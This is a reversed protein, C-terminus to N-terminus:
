ARDHKPCLYDGRKVCGCGHLTTDKTYNPVFGSDVITEKTGVIEKLQDLIENSKDPKVQDITCDEITVWYKKRGTVKYTGGEKLYKSFHRVFDRQPIDSM